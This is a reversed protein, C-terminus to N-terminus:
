LGKYSWGQKDFFRCYMLMLMKSFDEADDGGAGSLITFIADGTDYKGVGAIEAKLDAIQKIVAQAKNKDSWFDASNMSAELEILKQKKDEM